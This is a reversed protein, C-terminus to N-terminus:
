LCRQAIRVQHRNRASRPHARTLGLCPVLATLAPLSAFALMVHRGNWVSRRADTKPPVASTAQSANRRRPTASGFPLSRTMPGAATSARRCARTPRRSSPRCRSASARRTTAITAVARVLPARDLIPARARIRRCPPICRTALSPVTVSASANVKAIRVGLAGVAGQRSATAASRKHM